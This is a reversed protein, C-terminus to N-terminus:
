DVVNRSHDAVFNKIERTVAPSDELLCWHTAGHLEVYQARPIKGAVVESAGPHAITDNEAGLVLTPAKVTSLLSQVDHHKFDVVMKAYRSIAKTSMFPAAVLERHSGGVVGMLEMM